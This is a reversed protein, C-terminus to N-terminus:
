LGLLGALIGMLLLLWGFLSFRDLYSVKDEGVFREILTETVLGGDLPKLPLMNFIGILFNLFGITSLLSVFWQLGGQYSQYEEKIVTSSGIRVGLYGGEYGERSTATITYNGETTWIDVEDGPQVGELASRLQEVTEVEQGDVQVFTGNALGAEAAPYGEEAQYMLGSPEAVASAVAMSALLFFAATVYNAFSGACLVKLRSTWTGGEWHGGSSTTEGDDGPLMNEGKPEVFAGPLIGMVIWGVSNLEFGETRAVVAHSMEHVVMLIGVGIVWFEVPIFSVGAQFQNESTLGPLLLSPGNQASGSQIMEIFVQGVLGLSVVATLLGAAVGLWGYINWFRPFRKAMSDILDLGKKTRRYFLIYHRQVKERDWWLFGALGATFVVLFILRPTVDIM